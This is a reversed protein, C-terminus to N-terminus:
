GRGGLGAPESLRRCKLAGPLQHAPCGVQRSLSVVSTCICVGQARGRGPAPVSLRAPGATKVHRHPSWPPLSGPARPGPCHGQLRGVQFAEQPPGSRPCPFGRWAGGGWGGLRATSQEWGGQSAM